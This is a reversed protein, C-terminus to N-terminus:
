IIPVQAHHRPVLDAVYPVLQDLGLPQAEVFEDAQFSPVAAQYSALFAVLNPCLLEVLSGVRLVALSSPRVVVALFSRILYCGLEISIIVTFMYPFM